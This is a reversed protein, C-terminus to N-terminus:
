MAAPYIHQITAWSLLEASFLIRWDAISITRCLLLCSFLVCLPLWAPKIQRRKCSTSVQRSNEHLTRPSTRRPTTPAATPWHSLTYVTRSGLLDTIPDWRYGAKFSRITKCASTSASLCTSLFRSQAWISACATVRCRQDVRGDPQQVTVLDVGTLNRECYLLGEAPPEAVQALGSGAVNPTTRM